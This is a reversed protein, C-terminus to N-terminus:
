YITTQYNCSCLYLKHAETGVGKFQLINFLFNWLNLLYHQLHKEYRTFFYFHLASCGFNGPPPQHLNM